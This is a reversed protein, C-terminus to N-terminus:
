DGHDAIVHGGFRLLDSFGAALKQVLQHVRPRGLRQLLVHRRQLFTNHLADAISINIGTYEGASRKPAKRFMKFILCVTHDM